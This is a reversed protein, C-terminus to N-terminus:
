RPPTATSTGDGLTDAHALDGTVDFFSDPLTRAPLTIVFRAGGLPSDELRVDGGYFLDRKIVGSVVKMMETRGAGVLGFIGSIQGAYISFSTNRVMSGSCSTRKGPPVSSCFRRM